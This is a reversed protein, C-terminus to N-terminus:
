AINKLNNKLYEESSEARAGCSLADFRMETCALADSRMRACRLADPDCRLADGHM